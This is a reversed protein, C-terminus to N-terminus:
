RTRSRSSAQSTPVLKEWFDLEALATTVDENVRNVVEKERKAVLDEGIQALRWLKIHLMEHRVVENLGEWTEVKEDITHMYYTIRVSKYEPDCDCDATTEYQDGDEAIDRECRDDWVVRVTWKHLEFLKAYARSWQGIRSMEEDFLDRDGDDLLTEWKFTTM